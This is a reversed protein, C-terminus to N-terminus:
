AGPARFLWEADVVLGDLLISAAEGRRMVRASTRSDDGDLSDRHREEGVVGRLRAAPLHPDDAHSRTCM